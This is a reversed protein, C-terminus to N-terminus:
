DFTNVIEAVVPSQSWILAALGFLDVFMFAIAALVFLVAIVRYPLLILNDAILWRRASRKRQQPTQPVRRKAKDAYYMRRSMRLCSRMHRREIQLPLLAEGKNAESILRSFHYGFLLAVAGYVIVPDSLTVKLGLADAESPTINLLHALVLIVAFFFTRHKAKEAEARHTAGVSSLDVM